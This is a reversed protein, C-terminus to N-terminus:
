KNLAYKLNDFLRQILRRDNTIIEASGKAEAKASLVTGYNTKLQQPFDVLIQYTDVDSKETKTTNTTLSISRVRGTVSGYENYPFNDLKVIVEQHEKIKGAGQAPVILQGLVTEQKPIITFVQEGSQVFQNETYFKLFQVKGDFPSEFVYKQKWMKINDTLDNFASILAIRYEKEKEPKTVEVQQLQSYTQQRSQNATALSNLASQNADKASVYSMQTKDFEAESIVRKLFLISDRSYFKHTLQLNRTAMEVRQKAAEIALKQENLIEKLSAGQKDYVHGEKFNIYTQLASTFGYYKANLEGLSFNKPLKQQLEVILDSNPNYPKLLSDIYKVNIPNTGNELYAILQGGKVEEMSQTHMIKMKGYSSAVLKVPANATNITIQGTVIDPYRVIWGFFIMVIFIFLVISSVGLGFRTPMREIIAQVEENRESDFAIALTKNTEQTQINEM